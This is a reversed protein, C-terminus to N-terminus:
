VMERHRNGHVIGGKRAKRSGPIVRTVAQSQALRLSIEDRIAVRV